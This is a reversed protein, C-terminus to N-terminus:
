ADCDMGNKFHRCLSNMQRDKVDVLYEKVEPSFARQIEPDFDEEITAGFQFFLDCLNLCGKWAALRIPNDTESNNLTGPEAGNELLLQCMRVSEEGADGNCSRQVVWDLPTVKRYDKANVDAGGKLLLAAIEHHGFRAATHLPTSESSNRASLLAGNAILFACVDINGSYAALHLPTNMSKDRADVKAGRDLLLKCHSLHSYHAAFHLPSLGSHTVAHIDSFGTSSFMDDRSSFNLLPCRCDLIYRVIEENPQAVAWHLTTLGQDDIRASIIPCTSILLKVTQVLSGRIASILAFHLQDTYLVNNLIGRAALAAKCKELSEESDDACIFVDSIEKDQVTNVNKGFKPTPKVISRWISYFFSSLM